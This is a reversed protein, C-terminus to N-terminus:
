HCHRSWYNWDNGVKLYILIFLIDEMDAEQNKWIRQTIRKGSDEYWRLDDQDNEKHGFQMNLRVMQHHM